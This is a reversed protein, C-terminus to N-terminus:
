LNAPAGGAGSNHSASWETGAFMATVRKIVPQQCTTAALEPMEADPM